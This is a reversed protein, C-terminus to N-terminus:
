EESIYQVTKYTIGDGFKTVLGCLWENDPISKHTVALACMPTCYDRTLPCIKTTRNEDIVVNPENPWIVM